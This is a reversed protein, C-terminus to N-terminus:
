RRPELVIGQRQNWTTSARLGGDELLLLGAAGQQELFNIGAEPGLILAVKAFVEAEVTTPAIVSASVVGSEVPERTRPDILHNRRRGDQEWCRVATTSTALAEDHLRLLAIDAPSPPPGSIAVLWGKGDKGDGSAYIDGGADVLFDRAPSLVASARDVAFGKGIGGLDLRLGRPAKVSSRRRDLNIESISRAAGSGKGGGPAVRVLEFSRDYGAAELAELVAPEFLGGTRRNMELALSLVEFTEASVPVPVGGSRNLRSLESEPLFRSLRAELRLFVAGSEALSAADLRDRTVILVDTGM